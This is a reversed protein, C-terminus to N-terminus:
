SPSKVTPLASEVVTIEEETLGYLDYVLADIRVDTADIEQQVLRKEQDTKAKRLYQHLSLMQTVLAVMKDHRTKDALNDFDPTYIPLRAIDQTFFRLYGGRILAAIKSYYFTILKSNLIGLLYKQNSAIFYCSNACYYNGSEDYTFYGRPAIDPYFIKQKEFEGYYECARLEWWYDGKDCRIEASEAFPELHQAIAPYNEKLWKWKNKVDGSHTNTWGKPMIILNKGLQPPVYRKIDKGTLFPRIITASKPDIEILRNKTKDNIVFAENLGTIIGRYIGGMVYEELPRGVGQLKKLLNETRKDGLTWGGDTLTTQDIPHRHAKVYDVLDPFNLTDVKSVCFERFPATNSVRLICPYTTADKFVPLDGFDVIEEIQKTKLFKRLPKGYNARLWKNAVIYSFIGGPRLLSIGKEIFYAYLDATGQYVAYRSQYYEKQEKLSEQRVYPPNGIVVDFGGAMMVDPFGAHWDFPNVRKREDFNFPHVQKQDFYDPAVLSNGCRINHHLSPLAREAFLKLQRAVNEENEEELVKLLLSLKTVEVAQPDIDVGHINNLLIRKREATTLRWDSRLKSPDSTCKKYIPLDHGCDATGRKVPATEPLLARVEPSTAPHDVLVPVLHEIYWDRHWDLLLQYAGLLFSGSGCAPDLVRLSAVERPTKGKILERVTQKVIYDVIYAPTYFVGGAKRVEPKDEVDARHAATLRIVKGLFQEYVQGLIETPIVSFEYPSDPYYLNRIINKLVNDDIALGPTLTDPMEDRGAEESFHFLGSNYKDDAHRFQESLRHYVDDGEAISRLTEYHEIGRDECIRLFIIRDIILQVASNLEEVTLAANRLAINRALHLRWAEIDELFKEDVGATGHKEGNTEVYRDYTGKLIAEPSFVAAIRDWREEYETYPFYAIRATAATDERRIPVNCDYVAFEEFNTLISLKLKANWAYRRLQLAADLDDRIAVAPKKAECIFKRAGGIRFSYDIFKTQGRIQIPDEHAVEKYAESYGKNNDVDWGLARFFPDLFERRLETENKQGKHYVIRNFEYRQILDIVARPAPM